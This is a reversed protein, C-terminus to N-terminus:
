SERSLNGVPQNKPILYNAMFCEGLFCAAALYLLLARLAIGERQRRLSAALATPSTYIRVGAPELKGAVEAENMRELRGEEPNVNVAVIIETEADGTQFYVQYIGPKEMREILLDKRAEGLPYSRLRAEPDKVMARVYNAGEPPTMRFASGAAVDAQLGLQSTVGYKMTEYMLPLFLPRVVWNGWDPHCRTTFVLYRGAGVRREVLFPDGNDYAAVVSADSSLAAAALRRYVYFQVTSLNQAATRSLTRFVPHQEDVEGLSLTATSDLTVTRADDAGLGLLVCDPADPSGAAAPTAGNGAFAIVSSGRRAFSEIQKSLDRTLRELGVLFAVQYDPWKVSAAASEAAYDVRLGRPRGAKADETVPELASRLFFVDNWKGSEERGGHLVVAQVRSTVHWCFYRRNDAPLADGELRVEGALNGTAAPVHHFEVESASDAAIEVEQSEMKSGNIWLSVTQRAPRGGYNAVTARVRMPLGVFPMAQHVRVSTVATNSEMPRGVDLWYMATDKRTPARENLLAMAGRLASEQFDSILVLARNPTQAAELFKLGSEIASVATADTASPGEIRRLAEVAAASRYTAAALGEIKRGSTLLLMIEDGEPITKLLEGAAAIARDFSTLSESVLGTSYSDDLVLAWATQGPALDGAKRHPQIYPKALALALFAVLCTRLLLVLLDVLKHKRATRRDTQLLFRLTSIPLKRARQRSILHIVLPLAVAALALLMWPNAFVVPM